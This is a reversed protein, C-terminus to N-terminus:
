LVTPQPARSAFVPPAPPPCIHRMHKCSYRYPCGCYVWSDCLTGRCGEPRWSSRIADYDLVYSPKEPAVPAKETAAPPPAEVIEDAFVLGPVAIKALSRFIRSSATPRPSYADSSSKSDTSQQEKELDSYLHAQYKALTPVEDPIASQTHTERKNWTPTFWTKFRIWWSVEAPTQPSTHGSSSFSEPPSTSSQGRPVYGPLQTHFLKSVMQMFRQGHTMPVEVMPPQQTPRYPLPASYAFGTQYIRERAEHCRQIDDALDRHCVSTMM